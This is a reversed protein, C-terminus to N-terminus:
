SDDKAPVIGLEQLKKKNLIESDSMLVLHTLSVEMPKLVEELRAEYSQKVENVASRLANGLYATQYRRSSIEPNLYVVVKRETASLLQNLMKDEKTELNKLIDQFRKRLSPHYGYLYVYATEIEEERLMRQLNFHSTRVQKYLYDRAKIVQSHTRNDVLIESTEVLAPQIEDFISMSIEQWRELKAITEAAANRVKNAQERKELARSQSWSLLLAFISLLISASTLVDGITIEQKLEFRKKSM